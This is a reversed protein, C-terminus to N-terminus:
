KEMSKQCARTAPITVMTRSPIRGKMRIEINFVKIIRAIWCLCRSNSVKLSRFLPDPDDLFISGPLYCVSNSFTVWPFLTMEQWRGFVTFFTVNLDLGVKSTLELQDMFLKIITTLSCSKTTNQISFEPQVPLFINM